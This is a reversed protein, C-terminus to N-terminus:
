STPVIPDIMGLLRTASMDTHSYVFVDRMLEPHSRCLDLKELGRCLSIIQNQRKRVIEEYILGQLLSTKNNVTIVQIPSWGSSNILAMNKATDLIADLDDPTNAEDM